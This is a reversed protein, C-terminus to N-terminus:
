GHPRDGLRAALWLLIALATVVLGTGLLPVPDPSQVWDAIDTGRAIATPLYLLLRNTAHILVSLRVSEWAALVTLTLLGDVTAAALLAAVGRFGLVRGIVAYQVQATWVTAALLIGLLAAQTPGDTWLRLRLLAPDWAACLVLLAALAAALPLVMTSAAVLLRAPSPRGGGIWSAATLAGLLLVTSGWVVAVGLVALIAGNVFSNVLAALSSALVAAGVLVVVSNRVAIRECYPCGRSAHDPGAVGRRGLPLAAWPAALWWPLAGGAAGRALRPDCGLAFAGRRVAAVVAVVGLLLEAAAALHALPAGEARRLFIDIEALNYPPLTESGAYRTLYTREAQRLAGAADQFASEAAAGGREQWQYYRLVTARYWALVTLLKREYTLSAATTAPLAAGLAEMAAADGVAAFGDAITQDVQDRVAAYVIALASDAGTPTDWWIWLLPPLWTGALTTVREAYPRLYLGDLVARPSRALVAVAADVSAAGFRERAWEAALAGADQDPDWTLRATTAVNADIWTWDGHERFLIFPGGWGGGQAWVWAGAAGRAVAAGLAAAYLTGTYRPYLGQGEYERKAQFEVIQPVTHPPAGLTPNLLLYSFFDGPGYKLSVVLSPSDFGDFAAAYVAPDTHLAGIAGIGITWTRLILLRGAAEAPPLLVGLLARLDTLTRYVVRSEYGAPSNYANGGEGIRVMLATVQPYVAFLEREGAAYVAGLRTDLPDLRGLYQLLPPTYAALDTTIVVDLSLAGAYDLMATFYRRYIAHRERYPSDAAYVAHGDGLGDFDVLHLLDGIVLSNFGARLAWRAYTQFRPVAATLRPEDVYPPMPLDLEAFIFPEGWGGPARDLPYLPSFADVYRYGMAPTEAEDLPLPVGGWREIARVLWYAGYADGRPSAGAVVVVLGEAVTHTSLRYSDAARLADASPPVPPPEPASSSSLAPIVEGVDDLARTQANTAPGGVLVAGALLPATDDVVAPTASGRAGVAAALDQGLLAYLPDHVLGAALVIQTVALVAAPPTEAPVTLPADDPLDGGAPVASRLLPSPARITLALLLSAALLWLPLARM